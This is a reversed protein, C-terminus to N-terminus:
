LCRVSSVLLSASERRVQMSIDNVMNCIKAFGDDVLRIEEKEVKVKRCCLFSQNKRQVIQRACLFLPCTLFLKKWSQKHRANMFRKKNKLFVLMTGIKSGNVTQKRVLAM